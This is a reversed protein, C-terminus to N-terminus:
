FAGGGGGVEGLRSASIITGHYDSDASTHKKVFLHTGGFGDEFFHTM